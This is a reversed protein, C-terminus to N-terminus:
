LPTEFHSSDNNDVDDAGLSSAVRYANEDEERVIAAAYDLIRSCASSGVVCVALLWCGDGLSSDVDFCLDHAHSLPGSVFQQLTRNLADCNGGLMFALFQRIQSIAAVFSFLMVDLASWADVVEKCVLFAHRQKSTLPLTWLIIMTTIRVLPMAFAFILM